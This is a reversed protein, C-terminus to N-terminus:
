RLGTGIKRSGATIGRVARIEQAFVNLAGNSWELFPRELFKSGVTGREAIARRIPFVAEEPIGHRKVWDRIPEDPPMKGGPRRGEHLVIAYPAAPGGATIRQEWKQGVQEPPPVSISGRAAGEDVQIIQRAVTAIKQAERFLVGPVQEASLAKSWSTLNKEVVTLGELVIGM